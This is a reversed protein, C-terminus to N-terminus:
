GFFSGMYRVGSGLYEVSAIAVDTMHLTGAGLRETFDQFEEVFEAEMTRLRSRRASIIWAMDDGVGREFRRLCKSIDKYVDLPKFVYEVEAGVQLPKDYFGDDLYRRIRGLGDNFPAAKDETVLLETLHTKVQQKCWMQVASSVVPPISAWSSRNRPLLREPASAESTRRRGVLAGDDSSSSCLDPSSSEVRGPTATSKSSAPSSAKDDINKSRPM